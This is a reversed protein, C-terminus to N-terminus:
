AAAPKEHRFPGSKRAADMAPLSSGPIAFALAQDRGPFISIRKDPADGQLRDRMEANTLDRFSRARSTQSPARLVIVGDAKSRM